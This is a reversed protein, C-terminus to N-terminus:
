KIYIVDFEGHRELKADGLSFTQEKGVFILHLVADKTNRKLLIPTSIHSPNARSTPMPMVDSEFVPIYDHRYRYTELPLGASDTLWYRGDQKFLCERMSTWDGVSAKCTQPCLFIPRQTTSCGALLFGALCILLTSKLAFPLHRKM